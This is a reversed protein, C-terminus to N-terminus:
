DPSTGPKLPRDPPGLWDGALTPEWDLKVPLGQFGEWETSNNPNLAYVGQSWGSLSGALCNFLYGALWGALAIGGVLPGNVCVCVCVCM